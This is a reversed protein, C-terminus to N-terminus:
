LALAVAAGVVVLVGAITAVVAGIISAQLAGAARVGELGYAGRVFALTAHTPLRSSALVLVDIIAKARREHLAAVLLGVPGMALDWGCAYLGFRTARRSTSIAGSRRAGVDISWGHAAHAIVLIVSFIPVGLALFTLSTARASPDHALYSLWGPAVIACIGVFTALMASVAFLECWVAFRLAPLLPGDPLCEFFSEPQHATARATTWLRSFFPSGSREWAVVAVIGSRADDGGCGTCDADGCRACVVAAPVDALDGDLDRSREVPDTPTRRVLRMVELM